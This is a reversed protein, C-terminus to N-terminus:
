VIQETSLNLDMAGLNEQLHEPKSPSTLPLVTPDSLLMWALVVQSATAGTQEAVSRLAALRTESHEGIYKEWLEGGAYAGWLMVFYALITLGRQRCYEFLDENVPFM